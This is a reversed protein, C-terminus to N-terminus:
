PSQNLHTQAADRAVDRGISADKAQLERAFMTRFTEDVWSGTIVVSVIPNFPRDPRTLCSADLGAPAM